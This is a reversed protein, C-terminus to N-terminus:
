VVTVVMVVFDCVFRPAWVGFGVGGVAWGLQATTDARVMLGCRQLRCSVFVSISSDLARVSVFSFFSHSPSPVSFYFSSSLHVWAMTTRLCLGTAGYCRQWEGARAMRTQREAVADVGSNGGAVTVLAEM